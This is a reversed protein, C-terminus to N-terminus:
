IKCNDGKKVDYAATAEAIATRFRQEYNHKQNKNGGKDGKTFLFTRGKSFWYHDYTGYFMVVFEGRNHPIKLINDPIENPYLVIGPWWRYNGLKCWVVEDYLPFRGSECDDCIFKEEPAITKKVCSAHTSVPCTECCVM